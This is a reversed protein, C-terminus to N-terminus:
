IETKEIELAQNLIEWTEKQEQEDDDDRWKRLLEIVAQNKKIQEKRQQEEPTLPVPKPDPNTAQRFTRMIQLLNHWQEQPTLQIETLIENILLTPKAESTTPNTGDSIPSSPKVTQTM